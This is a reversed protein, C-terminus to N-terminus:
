DQEELEGVEDGVENMPKLNTSTARNSDWGCQTCIINGLLCFLNWLHTFLFKGLCSMGHHVVIFLWWTIAHM